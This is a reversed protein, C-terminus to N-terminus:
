SGSGHKIAGTKLVVKFPGRGETRINRYYILIITNNITRWFINQFIYPGWPLREPLLDQWGRFCWVPLGTFRSVAIVAWYKEPQALAELVDSETLDHPRGQTLADVGQAVRM